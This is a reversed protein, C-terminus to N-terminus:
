ANQEDKNLKQQYLKNKSLHTLSSVIAAAQKFPLHAHLVELLDDATITIQTSEQEHCGAMVIVFEGKSRSAQAGLWHKIEDLSGRVISEHIKSLEKVLCAAREGGIVAVMDSITAEIRHPAEFFVLLRPERKLSKLRKMRRKAESPLFGEFVFQNALFGTCSLASALASAGPIPVVPVGADHCATVLLHGADRLLPTGADSILAMQTGGRLQEVLTGKRKMENHEHLSTTKTPIEYHSLLVSSVRTDECLICDVRRLIDVARFTLDGLNGIPTAVVYLTGLTGKGSKQGTTNPPLKRSMAIPYCILKTATVIIGSLLTRCCAM